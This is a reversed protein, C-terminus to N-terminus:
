VTELEKREKYDLYRLYSDIMNFDSDELSKDHNIAEICERFTWSDKGKKPSLLAVDDLSKNERKM